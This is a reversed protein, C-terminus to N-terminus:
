ESSGFEEGVLEVANRVAGVRTLYGVGVTKKIANAATGTLVSPGVQAVAGDGVSVLWGRSEFRYPDLRPEFGGGGSVDHDVLRRINTAAVRAERIATQASAPVGTGEADVVRAADGVVFTGDGLRLTSRVAPRDGGMAASGTIGGTWTLLDFPLEAGADLEVRDDTARVVTAGTRITVDLSELEDRVARQFAAPFSPAVSDFQELLTIEVETADEEAAMAALEGALQVGSLGAGGVLVSGSGAELVSLFRERIRKAHDLRKLPIANTELGPLDYFNTEAGLCVAAYDYTLDGTEALSVANAEHDVSEVRDRVLTARELVEELPVDVDEAFSPRRVVRHLEHQVLHSGTEDVVVLEVDEPLSGELRRALTLGAYGAGLVVIRM